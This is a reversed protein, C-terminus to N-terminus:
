ATIPCMSPATAGTGDPQKKFGTVVPLGCVFRPQLTTDPNKYDRLPAGDAHSGSSPWRRMNPTASRFTRLPLSCRPCGSAVGVIVSGWEPTDM